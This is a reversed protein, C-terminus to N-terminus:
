PQAKARQDADLQALRKADEFAPLGVALSLFWHGPVYYSLEYSTTGNVTVKACAYRGCKTRVGTAGKVPREWELLSKAQPSQAAEPPKVSERSESKRKLRALMAQIEAESAQPTHHMPQYPTHRSM